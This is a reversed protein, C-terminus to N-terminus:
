ESAAASTSAACPDAARRVLPVRDESLRAILLPVAGLQGIVATDTIGILPTTAHAITMPVAIALVMRLTVPARRPAARSVSAADM